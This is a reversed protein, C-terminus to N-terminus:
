KGRKRWMGRKGEKEIRGKKEVGIRRRGEEEEKEGREGRRGAGERGGERKIGTVSRHSSHKTTVRRLDQESDFDESTM